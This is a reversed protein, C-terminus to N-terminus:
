EGEEGPPYRIGYTKFLYAKLVEQKLQDGSAVPEIGKWREALFSDLGEPKAKKGLAFSLKLACMASQCFGMGARTRRMLDSIQNVDTSLAAQQLIRWGVQECSCAFGDHALTSGLEPLQLRQTRCSGKEGLKSMVMDSVKEAMLRYTTLKGGIVSIFNEVGESSHDLVQFSRRCSRGEGEPLLPRLGSYARIARAKAIEPVLLAAERILMEVEERSTVLSGDFATSTTGIISSTHSPVIIDGDSPMRLRNIVGNVVRGNLVVMSGKDLKTECQTSALSAIASSESGCANVVVEPKVKNRGGKPDIFTVEAIRGQDMKFGMVRCYNMALAGNRRADTINSLVLQFPDVSADGVRVAALLKPSLGPEFSCAEATEVEEAEVGCGRCESLFKDLFGDGDLDIFWGGTDEICCPAIKKLVKSELACEKASGPDSTAYRAGSHLLGHNAGSAGSCFDGKEMLMVGRGRISLDRAIGSGTAGGGIVLVEIRVM